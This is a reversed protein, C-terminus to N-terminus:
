TLINMAHETCTSLGTVLVGPFGLAARGSPQFNVLFVTVNTSLM